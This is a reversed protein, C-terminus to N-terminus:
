ATIFNSADTDDLQMGAIKIIGDTDAWAATGDNSIVYMDSGYNFATFGDDNTTDLFAAAAAAADEINDEGAINALQTNNLVIYGDGGALGSLDLVDDAAVFDTVTILTAAIDDIDANALVNVDVTDSGAGLTVSVTESADGAAVVFTDNGAGLDVAVTSAGTVDTITDAGSGGTASTINALLTVGIDGTSASMDLTEVAAGVVTLATDESLGVNMTETTATGTVTVTGAAKGNATVTEVSTNTEGFTFANVNTGDAVATLAAVDTAGTVALAGATATNATVTTGEAVTVAAGATMGDGKVNVNRFDTGSLDVAAQGATGADEISLNLTEVNDFQGAQAATLDQDTGTSVIVATDMGAAGDIEDFANLTAGTGILVNFKDENATGTVIEGAATTLTFTDGVNGPVTGNAVYADTAAKAQAVTAEDETVGNVAAVAAAKAAANFEFGPVNGAELAFDLGVEVKNDLVSKDSTGAAADDRAGMIIAEIMDAVSVSGDELVGTWFDLGEQDPTRGFLNAYINTVFVAPSSVDPTTLYPYLAVAEPSAAFDAAITNFERGNDIQDIWFQLGAPDPARDFYGVYLATIANIQTSTAM